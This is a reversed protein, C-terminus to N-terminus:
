GVISYSAADSCVSRMVIFDRESGPEIPWLALMVDGTRVDGHTIAVHDNAWKRDPVSAYLRGKLFATRENSRCPCDKFAFPEGSLSSFKVIWAQLSLSGDSSIPYEAECISSGFQYRAESESPWLNMSIDTKNRWDPVWSPIARVGGHKEVTRIAAQWLIKGIQSNELLSRAFSCYIEEVTLSYNPSVTTYEFFSLLAFV